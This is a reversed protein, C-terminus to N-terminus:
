LNKKLFLAHQIKAFIEQYIQPNTRMAEKEGGGGYAGKASVYKVISVRIKVRTKDVMEIFASAKNYEVRTLGTMYSYDADATTKALVMGTERDASTIAYGYDQFTAIVAGFAQKETAEFERTQIAQLEVSSVQQDMEGFISDVTICGTLGMILGCTMLSLVVKKLQM